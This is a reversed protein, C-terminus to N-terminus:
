IEAGEGVKAPGCLDADEESAESALDIEPPDFFRVPWCRRVAARYLLPDPNTAVPHGVVELLPLDTISDTYFYSKALDIGQEEIFQQLWYIKGEEFCIPEIVRGTFFGEEVELRTYLMHDIELREAIPRVVFKTAGSVIAVVHGAERHQAVLRAAEPYLTQVVLEDFWRAAERELEKESQGRFQLMMRKTWNDIDLVGLKYQLYSWAGMLLETGSIEGRQYRYRMYLSGSNEAILTKDMDFFAGVSPQARLPVPLSM